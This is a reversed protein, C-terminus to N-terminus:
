NAGKKELLRTAMSFSPGDHGLPVNYEGPGPGEGTFFVNRIDQTEVHSSTFACVLGFQFKGIQKM